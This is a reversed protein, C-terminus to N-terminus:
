GSYTRQKPERFRLNGGGPRDVVDTMMRCEGVPTTMVVFVKETAVAMRQMLSMEECVHRSPQSM